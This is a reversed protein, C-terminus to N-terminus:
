MTDTRNSRQLWLDGRQLLSRAATLYQLLQTQMIVRHISRLLLVTIETVGTKHQSSVYWIDAAYIADIHAPCHLCQQTSYM